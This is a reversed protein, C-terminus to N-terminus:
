EIRDPDQNTDSEPGSEQQEESTRLAQGAYGHLGLKRQGVAKLRGQNRGDGELVPTEVRCISGWCLFPRRSISTM